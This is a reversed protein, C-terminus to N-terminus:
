AKCSWHVEVGNAACSCMGTGSYDPCTCSPTPKCQAPTPRCMFNGDVDLCYEDVRKCQLSPGCAFTGSPADPAVDEPADVAVDMTTAEPAVGDNASTDSTSADMESSSADSGNTSSGCAVLGFLTLAFFRM